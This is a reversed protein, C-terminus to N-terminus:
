RLTATWTITAAKQLMQAVSCYKEMSLKVARDFHKREVAGSAEFHVAIQTFVAPM